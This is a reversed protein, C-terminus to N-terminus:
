DGTNAVPNLRAVVGIETDLEDLLVNLLVEWGGLQEVIREGDLRNCCRLLVVQNEVNVAANSDAENVKDAVATGEGGLLSLVVQLHTNEVTEEDKASTDTENGM